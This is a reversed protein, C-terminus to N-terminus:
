QHEIDIVAAEVDHVATSAGKRSSAQYGSSSRYTDVIQCGCDALRPVGDFIHKLGIQNLLSEQLACWATANGCWRHITM